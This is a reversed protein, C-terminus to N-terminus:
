PAAGAQEPYGAYVIASDGYRRVTRVTLDRGRARAAAAGVPQGGAAAEPPRGTGAQLPLSAAGVELAVLVDPALMTSGSLLSLVGAPDEAYPPDALVLDFPAADPPASALFREVPAEVVLAQGALGTAELNARIASAARRDREVFTAAEAGRSLAEIGLAGSGAYLDLVRSGAVHPGLTSFLAEKVADATPRMGPAARLRRGKATGAIVRV